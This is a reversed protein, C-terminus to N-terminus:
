TDRCELFSQLADEDDEVAGGLLERKVGQAELYKKIAEDRMETAKTLAENYMSQYVEGPSKLRLSDTSDVNDVLAPKIESISPSNEPENYQNNEIDTEIENESKEFRDPNDSQSQCEVEEEEVGEGEREEKGQEPRSQRHTGETSRQQKILCEEEGDDNDVLMFQKGKLVIDISQSTFKIGEIHVLPIFSLDTLDINDVEVRVGEEDYVPIAINERRTPLKVHIGMTRSSDYLRYPSAMMMKIDDADVDEAFWSGRNKLVINLIGTCLKDLWVSLENEIETDYELEVSSTKGENVIQKRAICTPLQVYWKEGKIELNAIFAAGGRLPTPESIRVDTLAFDDSVSYVTM